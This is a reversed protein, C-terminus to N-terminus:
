YVANSFTYSLVRKLYEGYFIFLFIFFFGISIRLPDVIEYEAIAFLFPPVYVLNFFLSVFRNVTSM